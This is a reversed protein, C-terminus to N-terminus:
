WHKGEDIITCNRRQPQWNLQIEVFSVELVISVELVVVVFIFTALKRFTLSIPWFIFVNDLGGGVQLWHTCAKLFKEIKVVGM